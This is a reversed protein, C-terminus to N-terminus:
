YLPQSLSTMSSSCCSPTSGALGFSCLCLSPDFPHFKGNTELVIFHNIVVLNDVLFLETPNLSLSGIMAQRRM